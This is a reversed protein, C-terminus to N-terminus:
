EPLPPPPPDPRPAGGTAKHYWRMAADVDRATGRGERYMLGTFVQARTHGAQAARRFWAFADTMSQSRGRGYYSMWGMDYQAAPNGREAARRCWAIALSYAGDAMHHKCLWRHASPTKQVRRRILDHLTRSFGRSPKMWYNQAFASLARRAPVSDMSGSGPAYGLAKLFLRSQRWMREAADSRRFALHELRRRLKESAEGTVELNRKKQFAEIASRTEPGYLGDIVTIDYGMEQLHQQIARVTPEGEGEDAARAPVPAAAGLAMVLVVLAALATAVAQRTKM